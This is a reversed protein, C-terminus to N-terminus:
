GQHQAIPVRGTLVWREWFEDDDPLLRRLEQHIDDQTQLNAPFGSMDAKRMFAFAADIAVEAEKSRPRSLGFIPSTLWDDVEGLKVWPMEELVVERDRLDFGFLKDTDENFYPELSALVLPSHTTTLVQVKIDPDLLKIAELIAPFISRQWQPHLHLEMEDVFLFFRAAAPSGVLATAQQHEYWTWVLAYALSIVRKMGASLHTVPVQAYPLQVTPIDKVDQLSLRTAESAIPKEDSPFLTAVVNWFLSFIKPDHHNQWRVWDSLLGNCLTLGNLM